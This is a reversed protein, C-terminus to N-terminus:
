KRFFKSLKETFIKLIYSVSITIQIWSVNKLDFCKAKIDVLMHM